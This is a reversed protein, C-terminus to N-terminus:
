VTRLSITLRTTTITTLHPRALLRVEMRWRWQEMSSQRGDMRRLEERLVQGTGEPHEREQLVDRDRCVVVVRAEGGAERGM